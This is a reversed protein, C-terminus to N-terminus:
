DKDVYQWHYGGAIKQRGKCVNVICTQNTNTMKSAELLSDYIIKTEICIVKKRNISPQGIKFSTKNAKMIGKTGKNWSAIGKRNQSIKNRTEKSLHKGLWVKANNISMRKKTEDSATKGCHAKIMHERYQENEWMKKSNISLKKLVDQTLGNSVNGGNLINYGYKKNNSKYIKILEIEKQEAEEKTLNDYLILHKINDWGYKMIANTMYQNNKYGKGNDWRRTLKQKTIGIYVKNNPFLHMYVKYNNM